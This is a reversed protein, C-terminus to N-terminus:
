ACRAPSSASLMNPNVVKYLDNFESRDARKVGTVAKSSKIEQKRENPAESEGVNMNMEVDDWARRPPLGPQDTGIPKREVKLM